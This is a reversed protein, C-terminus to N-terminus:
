LAPRWERLKLATNWILGHRPHGFRTPSGLAHVRVGDLLHSVRSIRKEYKGPDAGNPNGWAVLVMGAGDLSRKIWTDNDRGVMVRYPHANLEEPYPSRLAFLNVIRIRDFRNRRAWAEVKGVTRDSRQVSATSPNKLIFVLTRAGEEAIRVELFYRYRGYRRPVCETIERAMKQPM